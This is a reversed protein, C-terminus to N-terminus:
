SPIKFLPKYIMLAVVIQIMLVRSYYRIFSAAVIAEGGFVFIYSFILFAINAIVCGIGLLIYIKEKQTTKHFSVIMGFLIVGLLIVSPLNQYFQQTMHKMLSITYELHMEIKSGAGFALDTPFDAVINYIKWSIPLVLVLICYKAIDKITIKELNIKKYFIGILILVFINYAFLYLGDQKCWCCGIMNLISIIFFEQKREFVLWELMYLFGCTYLVMFSMDSYTSTAFAFFQTFSYNILLIFIFVFNINLNRRKAIGTLNFLNILLFIAQFIRVANEQISNIFIYFGSYLLPLFNPYNELGTNMFFDMRKGLFINKANLGWVSFEDPYILKNALGSTIFYLIYIINAIILLSTIINNKEIKKLTIKNIKKGNKIWNYIGYSINFILGLIIPIFIAFTYKIKFIGLLFMYITFGIFGSTIIFSVLEFRNLNKIDFKNLHNLAILINIGLSIM